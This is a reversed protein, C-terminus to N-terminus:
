RAFMLVEDGGQLADDHYTSKVIGLHFVVLVVLVVFGGDVLGVDVTHFQHSGDAIEHHEGGSGLLQRIHRVMEPGYGIQRGTTPYYKCEEDNPPM